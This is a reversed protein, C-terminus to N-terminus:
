FIITIAKIVMEPNEQQYLNDSKCNKMKYINWDCVSLDCNETATKQGQTIKRM